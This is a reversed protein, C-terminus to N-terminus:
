FKRSMVSGAGRELGREPAASGSFAGTRATRRWTSDPVGPARARDRPPPGHEGAGDAVPVRSPVPVRIKAGCVKEARLAPM